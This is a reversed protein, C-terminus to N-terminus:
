VAIITEISTLLDKDSDIQASDSGGDGFLQDSKGDRSVLLDNGANGHLVDTGTDSADGAYLRDDGGEGNLQDSGAEGFLWDGSAGGFLRDDGDQGFLRDRGGNGSVRDNGIGGQVNDRGANGSLSDDGGSGLITDNGDGGSISDNGADGRLSDAASGGTITDSGDGGALTCRLDTENILTDNGGYGAMSLAAVAAAAFSQTKDGRHVVISDSERTVRLSDASETGLVYLETKRIYTLPDGAGAGPAYRIVSTNNGMLVRDLADVDFSYYHEPIAAFGDDDFTSDPTANSLLRFIQKGGLEGLIRQQSDLTVHNTSDNGLKVIGKDGFSTDLTADSNLRIVYGNTYLDEYDTTPILLKGDSLVVPSAYSIFGSILHLPVTGGTGFSTDLSGDSNRRDLFSSWSREERVVLFKANPLPALLPWGDADAAADIVLGGSQGFTSDFQGSSNLKYLIDGKFGANSSELDEHLGFLVGGDSTVILSTLNIYKLTFDKSVAKPALTMIGANGFSTDVGGTNLDIARVFVQLGGQIRGALVVRNGSIVVYEVDRTAPDAGKDVFSSDVSGDSNLRQAKDIGAVVIKGGAVESVFQSAPINVTGSVGFTPDLGIQALLARTELVEVVCDRVHRM